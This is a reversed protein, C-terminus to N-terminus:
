ILHYQKPQLFYESEKTPPKDKKKKAYMAILWSLLQSYLNQIHLSKIILSRTISIRLKLNTMGFSVTLLLFIQNYFAFNQFTRIQRANSKSLDLQEM